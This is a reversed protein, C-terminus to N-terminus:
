RPYIGVGENNIRNKMFFCKKFGQLNRFQSSLFRKRIM